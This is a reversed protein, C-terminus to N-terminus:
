LWPLFACVTPSFLAACMLVALTYFFPLQRPTLLVLKRPFLGERRNWRQWADVKPTVRDWLRPFQLM